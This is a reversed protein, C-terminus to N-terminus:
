TASEEEEETTEVSLAIIRAGPCCYLLSAMWTTALFLPQLKADVMLTDTLDLLGSHLSTSQPQSIISLM